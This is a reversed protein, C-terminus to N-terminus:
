DKGMLRESDRPPPYEFREEPPLPQPPSSVTITDEELPEIFQSSQISEPRSRKNTRTM